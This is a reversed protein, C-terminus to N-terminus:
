ALDCSASIPFIATDYLQTHVARNITMTRPWRTLIMLCREINGKADVPHEGSSKTASRRSVDDRIWDYEFLFETVM